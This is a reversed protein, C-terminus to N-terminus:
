LSNLVTHKNHREQQKSSTYPKRSRTRSSSCTRNASICGIWSVGLWLYALLLFDPDFCSPSCDCLTLYLYSDVISLLMLM